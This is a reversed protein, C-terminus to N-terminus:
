LDTVTQQKKHLEQLIEKVVNIRSTFDTRRWWFGETSKDEPKRSLLEPFYRFHTDLNYGFYLRFYDHLHTCIGVTIKRSLINDTKSERELYLQLLVYEYAQIRQRYSLVLISDQENDFFMKTDDLCLPIIWSLNLMLEHYKLMQLDIFIPREDTTQKYYRWSNSFAKFVYVVWDIGSFTFVYEWDNIKTTIDTEEKFERVMAGVPTEFPSIKGGIGNLKGAMFEPHTKEILLVGKRNEGFMFGLCYKTM